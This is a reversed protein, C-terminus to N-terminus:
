LTRRTSFKHFLLLAMEGDTLLRHFLKKSSRTGTFIKRSESRGGAEDALTNYTLGRPGDAMAQPVGSETSFHHKRLAPHLEGGATISSAGHVPECARSRGAWAPTLLDPSIGSGVTVTRIFSFRTQCAHLAAEM